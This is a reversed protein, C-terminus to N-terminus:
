AAAKILIDIAGQPLQGPDPIGPLGDPMQYAYGNAYLEDAARALVDDRLSPEVGMNELINYFGQGPQVNFMETSYGYDSPDYHGSGNYGDYDEPVLDGFWSEHPTTEPSSQPTEGAGGDGGAEPAGADPVEPDPTAEPAPLDTPLVDANNGAYGFSEWSLLPSHAVASAALGTAAAIGLSRLRRNQEETVRSEFKESNLSLLHDFLSHLDNDSFEHGDFAKAYDSQKLTSLNGVRQDDTFLKSRNEKDAQQGAERRAYAFGAATAGALVGGTAIGVAVSAAVGAAAAVLPHRNRLFNGLKLTVKKKWLSKANDAQAEKMEELKHGRDFMFKNLIELREAPTKNPDKLLDKNQLKFLERLENQYQHKLFGNEGGLVRTKEERKAYSAALEKEISDVEDWKANIKLAEDHADDLRQMAPAPADLLALGDKIIPAAFEYNEDLDITAERVKTLAQQYADGNAKSPTQYREKAVAYLNVALEQPSGPEDDDAHRDLFHGVYQNALANKARDQDSLSTDVSTDYLKAHLQHVRGLVIDDTDLEVDKLLETEHARVAEVRALQLIAIDYKMLYNDKRTASDALVADLVAGIGKDFSPNDAFVKRLDQDSMNHYPPM